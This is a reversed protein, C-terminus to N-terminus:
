QGAKKGCDAKHEYGWHMKQCKKDCYLAAKCRGCAQLVRNENGRAGCFTCYRIDKRLGSPPVVLLLDERVWQRFDADSFSDLNAAEGDAAWLENMLADFEAHDAHDEVQRRKWCTVVSAIVAQFVLPKFASSKQSLILEMQKGHATFLSGDKGLVEGLALLRQADVCMFSSLEDSITTKGSSPDHETTLKALHSLVSGNADTLSTSYSSQFRPCLGIALDSSGQASQTRWPPRRTLKTPKLSSLTDCINFTETKFHHPLDLKSLHRPRLRLRFAASNGRKVEAAFL